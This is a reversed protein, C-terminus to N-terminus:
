IFVKCRHGHAVAGKVMRTLGRLSNQQKEEVRLTLRSNSTSRARSTADCFFFSIKFFFVRFLITVEIM